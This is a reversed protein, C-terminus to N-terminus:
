DVLDDPHYIGTVEIWLDCGFTFSELAPDLIYDNANVNPNIGAVWDAYGQDCHGEFCPVALDIIWEDSKDDDKNITGTAVNAPDTPDHFALVGYDTNPQPDEYAPTKSLYACLLPLETYGAPCQDDWYNVKAYLGEPCQAGTPDDCACKPKQVIKYDISTVRRQDLECFSDSTTIWISKELYEQPFVTGFELEGTLPTVRLANEIHATVNIVHAEFAAFMPVTAIAVALAVVILLSKKM